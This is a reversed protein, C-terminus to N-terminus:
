RLAALGKVEAASARSSKGVMRRVKAMEEEFEAGRRAREDPGVYEAAQSDLIRPTGDMHYKALNGPWVDNHLIGQDHLRTYADIIAQQEEESLGTLLPAPAINHYPRGSGCAEKVVAILSKYFQKDSDLFYRGEYASLLRPVVDELAKSHTCLIDIENSIHQAAQARLYDDRM